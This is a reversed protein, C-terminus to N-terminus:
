KTLPQGAKWWREFPPRSPTRSAESYDGKYLTNVPPVNWSERRSVIFRDHWQLPPQVVRWEARIDLAAMETYFRRWDKKAKEDVQAPGSLIRIEAVRAADAEDALPELGKRGFHPEAWWIYGQCRRLIERLHRVNSYPRDPEVVRVVPPLQEEADPLPATVRVTQHKNSYAVIGARNLTQLFTRVPGTKGVDAMRHRGLFHVAGSFSVGSRGHLGQM